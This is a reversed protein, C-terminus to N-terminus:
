VGRLLIIVMVIVPMWRLVNQDKGTIGDDILPKVSYVFATDVVAFAIMAGVAVCVTSKTASM